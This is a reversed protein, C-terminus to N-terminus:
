AARFKQQLTCYKYYYFMYYYFMKISKKSAAIYTLIVLDSFKTDRVDMGANFLFSNNNYVHHTSALLQM